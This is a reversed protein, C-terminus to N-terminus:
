FTSPGQCCHNSPYTGVRGQTGPLYIGTGKQGRRNKLTFNEDKVLRVEKERVAKTMSTKSTQIIFLRPFQLILNTAFQNNEAAQCATRFDPSINPDGRTPPVEM